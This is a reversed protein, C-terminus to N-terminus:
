YLTNSGKNRIVEKLWTWISRYLKQTDTTSIDDWEERCSIWLADIDLYTKKVVLSKLELCLSEIINLYSSQAPWDNLLCIRHNELFSISSASTVYPEMKNLVITMYPFCTMCCFMKINPSIWDSLVDLLSVVVM